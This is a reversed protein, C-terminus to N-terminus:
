RAGKKELYRARASEYKLREDATQTLYELELQVQFLAEWEPTEPDFEQALECVMPLAVRAFEPTLYQYESQRTSPIPTM